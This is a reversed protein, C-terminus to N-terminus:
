IAPLHAYLAGRLDHHGEYPNHADENYTGRGFEDASAYEVTSTIVGIHRDNKFGGQVIEGVVGSAMAGPHPDGKHARAQVRTKYDGAILNVYENVIEYLPAGLLIESLAPNPDDYFYHTGDVGLAPELRGVEDAM